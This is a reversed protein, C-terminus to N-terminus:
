DWPCYSSNWSSEIEESLTNIIEELSELTKSVEAKAKVAKELLEQLRDKDM